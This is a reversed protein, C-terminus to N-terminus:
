IAAVPDAIARELAALFLDNEGPTGITVRLHRALAAFGGLSRIRVGSAALAAHVSAADADLRFLIFNALSPHPAIGPLAALAAFVRTRETIVAAAAREVHPRVEGYRRALVLQWANLHYPATYMREVARIADPHAVAFGLHAGALSAKSLSRVVFLNPAAPVRDVLTFGSVDAYAEDIMVLRRPEALAAEIAAASPMGGTPNNPAVLALLDTAPAADILAADIRADVEIGLDIPGGGTFTRRAAHAIFPYTPEFWRAVRGPGGAILFAAEIAQDAGVTLALTDPDLGFVAALGRKAAAYAGPQIYRNWAEAELEALLSRKLEPPLDVAAENQDLKARHPGQTVSLGYSAPLDSRLFAPM